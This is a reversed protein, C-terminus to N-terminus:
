LPSPSVLHREPEVNRKVKGGEQGQDGGWVRSGRGM